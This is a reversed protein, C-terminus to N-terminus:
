LTNLKIQPQVVLAENLNYTLFNYRQLHLKRFALEESNSTIAQQLISVYQLHENVAAKRKSRFYLLMGGLVAIFLLIILYQLYM